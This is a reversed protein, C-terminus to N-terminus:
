AADPTSVPIVATLRTGHGPPSDITLVGGITTLRDALGRLGSGDRPDAGGIGDDSVEIHLEASRLRVAVRVQGAKAHKAVNQLAESIVFYATAEIHDPLRADIDLDCSVPVPIHQSLVPVSGVLGGEALLTPRMGRTLERLETLTDRLAVAAEDLARELTAPDDVYRRAHEISMGVGILRQQAGDHLDRELRRREELTALALSARAVEVERLQSRVEMELRARALALRAAAVVADLLRRDELLAPDHLLSAGADVVTEARSAATLDIPRGALDVPEGDTNRLVVTLTPEALVARLEQEMREPPVQELRRILDAVDPGARSLGYALGVPLAVSAAIQAYSAIDFIESMELTWTARQIVIFSVVLVGVIPIIPRFALRVAPGGHRIRYALVGVFWLAIAAVALAAVNDLTYALPSNVQILFPNDICTERRECQSIWHTRSVLLNPVRSGVLVVYAVIILVREARRHFRGDPYLLLAHGVLIGPLPPALYGVALALGNPLHALRQAAGALGVCFILPGVPNGPWRRWMLLGSAQLFAATLMSSVAWYPSAVAYWSGVLGAVDITAAVLWCAYWRPTAHRAV